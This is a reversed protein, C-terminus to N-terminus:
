KGMHSNAYRKSNFLATVKIYQALTFKIYPDHWDYAISNKLDKHNKCSEM